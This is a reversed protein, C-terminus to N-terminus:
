PTAADGHQDASPALVGEQGIATAGALGHVAITTPPAPLLRSAFDTITM